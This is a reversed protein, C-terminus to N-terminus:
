REGADFTNELHTISIPEFSDKSQIMVEIIDFRYQTDSPFQSSYQM